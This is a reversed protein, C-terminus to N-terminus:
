NNDNAPGAFRNRYFFNETFFMYISHYKRILVYNETVSNQLPSGKEIQTVAPNISISVKEM